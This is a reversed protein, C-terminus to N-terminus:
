RFGKCGLIFCGHMDISFIDSSKDRNKDELIRYLYANIGSVHIM